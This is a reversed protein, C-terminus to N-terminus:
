VGNGFSYFIIGLFDIDDSGARISEWEAIVSDVFASNFRFEYANFMEGEESLNM